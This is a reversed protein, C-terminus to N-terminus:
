ELICSSKYSHKDSNDSYACAYTHTHAHVIDGTMSSRRMIRGDM